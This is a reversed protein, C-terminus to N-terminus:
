CRDSEAAVEMFMRYLDPHEAWLREMFEVRQRKGMQDFGDAIQQLLSERDVPTDMDPVGDAPLDDGVKLLALVDAPFADQLGALVGNRLDLFLDTNGSDQLSYITSHGIHDGRVLAAFTQVVICDLLREADQYDSRNTPRAWLRDLYGPVKAPQDTQGSAVQSLVAGLTEHDKGRIATILQQELPTLQAASEANVNARGNKNAVM